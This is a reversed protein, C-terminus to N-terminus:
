LPLYPELYEQLKMRAHHLNARVGGYSLKLIRAVERKSFGHIEHLVIVARQRPPLRELGEVIARHLEKAEAEKHPDKAAGGRLANLKADVFKIERKRERRLHTLCINTVIRSLWTSFNSRGKFKNISRYARLWAEQALDYASEADNVMHYAIQYVKKEYKLVLQEFAEGEGEQSRKVLQLDQDPMLNEDKRM